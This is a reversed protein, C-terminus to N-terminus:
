AVEFGSNVKSGLKNSRGFKFQGPIRFKGARFNSFFDLYFDLYNRMSVM